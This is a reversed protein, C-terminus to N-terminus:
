AGKSALPGVDVFPEESVGIVVLAVRLKSVIWVVVGVIVILVDDLSDVTDLSDVGLGSIILWDM